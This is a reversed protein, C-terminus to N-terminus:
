EGWLERNLKEVKQSNVVFKGDENYVGCELVSIYGEEGEQRAVYLNYNCKAPQSYINNAQKRITMVELKSITEKLNWIMESIM